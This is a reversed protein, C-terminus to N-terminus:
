ENFTYAPGSSEWDVFEALIKQADGVLGNMTKEFNSILLKKSLLWQTRSQTDVEMTTSQPAIVANQVIDLANEKTTDFGAFIKDM